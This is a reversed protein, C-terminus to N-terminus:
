ELNLISSQEIFKKIDVVKGAIVLIDNENFPTESSFFLDTKHDRNFISTLVGEKPPKKIAILKIRIREELNVSAPLHGIFDKPVKVEAVAYEKCLETFRLVGKLQLMSALHFASDELPLIVEEIGIQTLINHHTENIARGIIRGAKLNKLISLTLVSAGVDEGIAVIIADMDDLPLTKVANINTTDMRIVSTFAEELEELLEGSNDIGLVEHGMKTLVSACKSGFEGLGIVIYKM